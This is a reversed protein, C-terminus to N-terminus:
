LENVINIEQGLVINGEALEFTGRLLKGELVHPLWLIDDAWMKDFPIDRVKFWRPNMEESEIPEGRWTDTFYIHVTQNWTPDHPWFFSIEATKEMNSPSVGIEERAERRASEEMTEGAEVKGGVGNWRGTGFGRKKMALCIEEIKGGSKKILFVLTANRLKQM